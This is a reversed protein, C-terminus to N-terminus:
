GAAGKKVGETIAAKLGNEMLFKGFAKIRSWWTAQPKKEVPTDPSTPLTEPTPDPTTTPMCDAIADLTGAVAARVITELQEQAIPSAPPTDDEPEPATQVVLTLDCQVKLATRTVDLIPKYDTQERRTLRLVFRTRKRTLGELRPEAVREPESSPTGSPTDSM